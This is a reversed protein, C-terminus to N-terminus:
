GKYEQATDVNDEWPITWESVVVTKVVNSLIVLDPQLNTTVTDKPFSSQMELHLLISGTMPQQSFERQPIVTSVLKDDGEKM